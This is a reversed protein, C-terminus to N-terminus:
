DRVVLNPPSDAAISYALRKGDSSWVPAGSWYEAPVRASTPTAPDLEILWVSSVGQADRRDVALRRGTPDL